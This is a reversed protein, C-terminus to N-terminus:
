RWSWWQRRARTARDIDILSCCDCAGHYALEVRGEGQRGRDATARPLSGTRRMRRRRMTAGGAEDRDGDFVVERGTRAYRATFTAAGAAMAPACTDRRLIDGRLSYRGGRSAARV